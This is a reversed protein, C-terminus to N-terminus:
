YLAAVPQFNIWMNDYPDPQTGDEIMWAHMSKSPLYVGIFICGKAKFTKSLSAAFLTRPYCLDTQRDTPFIQRFAIIADKTTAFCPLGINAFCRGWFFSQGSLWVLLKAYWRVSPSVNVRQKKHKKHALLYPQNCCEIADSLKPISHQELKYRRERNKVLLSGTFPEFFYCYEKKYIPLSHFLM